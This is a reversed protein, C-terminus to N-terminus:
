GAASSSSCLAELARDAHVNMRVESRIVDTVRLDPGIVFTARKTPSLGGLGKRVGFLTAVEGDADSLLPYDFRHKDSFRKQKEVPDASIGVRRAGVAEFEAALDRFHCSEKTCGYTLAAPYFFLVVPHGDSLESLRRPRGDEDPLEFDPVADGPQVGVVKAM